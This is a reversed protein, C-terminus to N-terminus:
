DEIHKKFVHHILFKLYGFDSLFQGHTHNSNVVIVTHNVEKFQEQVLDIPILPDKGSLVIVNKANDPFDDPWLMIEMGNFRRCFTQALTLDRSFIFQVLDMFRRFSVPLGQFSRYVFNSTLKPHCTMLCVPDILFAQFVSSRTSQLIQALVFTGYSHAIFIGKDYGAYEMADVIDSALSTLNPADNSYMRLAVHRMEVLIFVRDRQMNIISIIFHIYPLVGFGIGHLFVFPPKTDECTGPRYIWKTIGGHKMRKFGYLYLVSHSCIGVFEMLLYLILPKHFARIPEITHGMFKVDPNYGEQFSIDYTDCTDQLFSGIRAKEPATLEETKKSYFGYAIFEVMNGQRIDSVKNGMFWGELFDEIKTNLNKLKLFQEMAFSMRLSNVSVNQSRTIRAFRLSESLYFVIEFSMYSLFIKTALGHDELYASCFYASVLPCFLLSAILIARHCAASILPLDIRTFIDHFTM